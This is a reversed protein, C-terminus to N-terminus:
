NLRKKMHFHSLTLNHFITLCIYKGIYKVFKSKKKCKKKANKDKKIHIKGTNGQSNNMNEARKKQM